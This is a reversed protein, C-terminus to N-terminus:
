HRPQEPERVLLRLVRRRPYTALILREPMVKIPRFRVLPSAGDIHTRPRCNLPRM